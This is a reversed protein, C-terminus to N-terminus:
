RGGERMPVPDEWSDGPPLAELGDARFELCGSRPPLFVSVPRPARGDGCYLSVLESPVGQAVVRHGEENVGSLDFRGPRPDLALLIGGLPLAGEASWAELVDILASCFAHADDPGARGHQIRNRAQAASALRVAVRPELVRVVRQGTTSSSQPADLCRDLEVALTALEGASIRTLTEVWTWGLQITTRFEAKVVELLGDITSSRADPPHSQLYYYVVWRLLRELENSNATATEWAAVDSSAQQALEQLRAALRRPRARPAPPRFGRHDLWRDMLRDYAEGAEASLGLRRLIKHLHCAALGETLCKRVGILTFGRLRHRLTDPAAQADVGLWCELDEGQLAVGVDAVLADYNM